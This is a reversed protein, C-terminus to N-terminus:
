KQTLTSFDPALEAQTMGHADCLMALAGALRAEAQDRVRQAAELQVNLDYIQLKAQAINQALKTIGAREEPSLAYTTVNTGPNTETQNRQM